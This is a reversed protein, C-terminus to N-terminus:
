TLTLSPSRIILATVAFSIFSIAWASTALKNLTIRIVSQLDQDRKHISAGPRFM